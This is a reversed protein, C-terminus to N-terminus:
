TSGKGPSRKGVKRMASIASLALRAAANQQRQLRIYRNIDKQAVTAGKFDTSAGSLVATVKKAGALAAEEAMEMESMKTVTSM